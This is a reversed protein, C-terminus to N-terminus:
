DQSLEISDRLSKLSYISPPSLLETSVWVFYSSNPSMHSPDQKDVFLTHVCCVYNAARDVFHLGKNGRSIQHLTTLFMLRIAQIYFAIKM